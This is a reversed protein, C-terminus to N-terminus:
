YLKFVSPSALNPHTLHPYRSPVESSAVRDRSRFWFLNLLIPLYTLCFYQQSKCVESANPCPLRCIFSYYYENWPIYPSFSISISVSRMHMESFFFSAICIRNRMEIFHFSTCTIITHANRPCSTTRRHQHSPYQSRHLRSPLHYVGPYTSAVLTRIVINHHRNWSPYKDDNHQTWRARKASANLHFSTNVTHRSQRTSWPTAM